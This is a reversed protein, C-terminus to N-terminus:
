SKRSVEKKGFAFIISIISNKERIRINLFAYLYLPSIIQFLGIYNATSGVSKIFPLSFVFFLYGVIFILIGAIFGLIEDKETQVIVGILLALGGLVFGLVSPIMSIAWSNGTKQDSLYTTATALLPIITLFIFIINTDGIENAEKKKKGGYNRAMLIMVLLLFFASLFGLIAIWLKISFVTKGAYILLALTLLSFIGSLLFIIDPLPSKETKRTDSYYNFLASIMVSVSMTFDAFKFFYYHGPNFHSCVIAVPFPILLGLTLLATFRFFGPYSSWRPNAKFMPM